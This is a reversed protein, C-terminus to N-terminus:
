RELDLLAAVPVGQRRVAALIRREDLPQRFEMPLYEPRMFMLVYRPRSADNPDYPVFRVNHTKLIPSQRRLATWQASYLEPLVAVAEGRPVRAAVEKLLTRTVGDGWYSVELGLRAAGSLGGVSLNYYSLWCPAMAVLGVGQGAFFFALAMAVARPSWRTSLWARANEAGRGILVAWLPFVISFLREGDYVPVGPFSFVCLPFLICALVLLERPSKWARREPGWLGYIGLLQLGVPVTVLFMLWPYHWPVDRDVLSAGFYWVNLSARNTARGLYQQVHELPASWLYPWGCFFLICGTLGWVFLLPIARARLQFLAWVAIPLPLLIAQVKSLLAFGFLIGGLAATGLARPWTEQAPQPLQPKGQDTGPLSRGWRQALFLVTATCTLNVMTELAALHAHGFLRPMLVLALAAAAGGWRGYWRGACVGVLVVLAAFATAPATRACAISYGTQDLPPSVILALEHCLGIWLRGLPPHDPLGADIKRFGALDLALIRDILFVGQEVNFPEDVTMGPGDFSGPHDGAPDLAVVISGWAVAAIVAPWFWVTGTTRAAISNLNM